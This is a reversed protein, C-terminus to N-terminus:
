QGPLPLDGTETEIVATGAPAEAGAKEAESEAAEREAAREREIRRWRAVNRTHEALSSAFVHGGSGDAVFFLYDSRAPKLVAELSAKGPNAIPTPPLGNVQYTNYPTVTDIDSQLIPRDLAGKGRTIGYIITPDSQLRMGRKLRNIFVSAVLPREEPRGTEKEVISALVVAESKSTFPLDQARATWLEDLLRAHADRMQSLVKSRTTGRPFSYTEPLLTGEAPTDAIADGELTADANLKQVVDHSTWGEPVTVMYLLAKGEVLIHMVDRMSARPPISYEGAKLRGKVDNVIVGGMFVYEDEIINERALQEAITALGVGTRIDVVVEHALPGPAEFSRWAFFLLAGGVIGLVVFLTVFFSVFRAFGSRGDRRM